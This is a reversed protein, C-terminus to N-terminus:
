SAYTSFKYLKTYDFREVARMLGINGEQILDLLSLEWSLNRKVFVLVLRLNAKIFKEKLEDSKNSYANMLNILKM